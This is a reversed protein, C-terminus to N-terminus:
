NFFYFKFVKIVRETLKSGFIYGPSFFDKKDISLNSSKKLMKDLGLDVKVDDKKFLNSSEEWVQNATVSLKSPQLNM